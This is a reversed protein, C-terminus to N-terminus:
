SAVEEEYLALDNDMTLQCLYGSWYARVLPATNKRTVAGIAKATNQPHPIKGSKMGNAFEQKLTM